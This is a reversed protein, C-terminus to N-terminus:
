TGCDHEVDAESVDTDREEANECGVCEDVGKGELCADRAAVDDREDNQKVDGHTVHPQLQPPVSRVDRRPLSAM